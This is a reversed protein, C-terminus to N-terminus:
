AATNAFLADEVIKELEAVDEQTQGQLWDEAKQVILEWVDKEEALKKKLFVVACLTALVVHLQDYQGPLKIDAVAASKTIGVITELRSSWDWNGIFTQESFLASMPTNQDSSSAPMPTGEEDSYDIMDESQDLFSDFDFDQLVDSSKMHKNSDAAPLHTSKRKISAAGGAYLSHTQTPMPPKGFGFGGVAPKSSTANGFLGSSPGGGQTSFSCSGFLTGTTNISSSGFLGGKPSMSSGGYGQQQPPPPLPSQQQQQQQQQRAMMLSKKKKQELLRGDMQYDQLAHNSEPAERRMVLRKKNQQELLMLQMQYDQLAEPSMSELMGQQAQAQAQQQAEQERTQTLPRVPEQAPIRAMTTSMQVHVPVQTQQHAQQQALQQARAQAFAQLQAQRQAETTSPGSAPPQAMGQQQAMPMMLGNSSGAPSPVISQRLKMANPPPVNRSDPRNAVVEEQAKAVKGEDDDITATEQSKDANQETDEIAVFSCWRGSVQFQTGLRVAERKVMDSFQGEYRQQLPKGKEDKAHFIWGRGDELERTAKRAALQHITTGKEALIAIPIELSLPGHNSTGRLIVSKPQRDPTSDSLLVYVTTRSFPYLQPIQFPAQLYRPVTVAPLDVKLKSTSSMELDKDPVSQDFLSITIQDNGAINIDASETSPMELTMADMVKEIVEFDDGNDDEGVEDNGYKIELTYDNIHPTLAGKLMRVLMKDVREGDAVAQSFGNGAHAVGEILAHSAMAGVGLTFVRIAGKSQSVNTNILQFLQEQNWTEGDTLLIVELNMDSYRRSFIEAMPHYMETGGLNADFTNIHSIAMKLSNEDYTQSREWLFSYSSGFSCINFKVGVPLSKLFVKLAEIVNRIKHGDGMSGSRDCMFVVECMATPLNFRPVLTAMLARQNPITPHTELVAMPDGLGTAVIQIVFDKNLEVSSQSLTAYARQLSPLESTATSLTGINVSIPHSPSQVSKIASNGSVDVDVTISIHEGSQFSKAPGLSYQGYRQAVSTPITFRLGDVQADHKLEGLYTIEVKVNEGTPINGLSTMFVDSAQSSQELLGATQGQAVAADFAQKAENREKVVGKIVRSGATCTFAVVSVGDYLPFLYNVNVLHKLTGIKPSYFTQTLVTRSTSSVIATHVDVSVLPLFSRYGSSHIYLGCLPQPQSRFATFM